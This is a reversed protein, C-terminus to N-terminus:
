RGRGPKNHRPVRGEIDKEPERYQSLGQLSSNVTPPQVNQAKTIAPVSSSRNASSRAGGPRQNGSYPNSARIAKEQKAQLMNNRRNEAKQYKDKYQVEKSNAEDELRKLKEEMDEKEKLETQLKM